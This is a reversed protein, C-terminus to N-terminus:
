SDPDENPIIGSRFQDEPRDGKSRHDVAFPAGCPLVIKRRRPSPKDANLGASEVAELDHPSLEHAPRFPFAHEILRCAVPLYKRITQINRKFLKGIHDIGFQTM